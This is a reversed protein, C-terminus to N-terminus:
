KDTDETLDLRTLTEQTPVGDETWGRFQYYAKVMHDMDQKSVTEGDSGGGDGLPVQSFREPLKDHSKVLGERLNFLRALNFIREGVELFEKLSIELGTVYRLASLLIEPTLPRPPAAPFKCIPLVDTLIGWLEQTKKVLLPKGQYEKRGMPKVYGLDPLANENEFCDDHMASEHDAGKLATAYALAIGKKGRPDHMPIECGKVHMAWDESGKGIKQSAIRVGEALTDGFGERYAIMRILELIRDPDGWKLDFGIDDKTLVGNEFCEM